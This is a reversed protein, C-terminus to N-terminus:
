NGVVYEYHFTTQITIGISDICVLKIATGARHACRIHLRTHTHAQELYYDNLHICAKLPCLHKLSSSKVAGFVKKFYEPFLFYDSFANLFDQVKTCFILSNTLSNKM